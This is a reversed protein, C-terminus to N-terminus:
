SDVVVRGNEWEDMEITVHLNQDFSVPFQYSNAKERPM